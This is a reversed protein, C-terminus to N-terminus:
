YRGNYVEAEDPIYEYRRDLVKQMSEILDEKDDDFEGIAWMLYRNPIDGLREGEHRGFPMTRDEPEEDSFDIEISKRPM